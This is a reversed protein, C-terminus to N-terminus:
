APENNWRTYVLYYAFVLLAADVTGLITLWAGRCFMDRPRIELLMTGASDALCWNRNWFGAPKLTFEEGGFQIITERRFFGRPRASGSIGGNEWLEHWGRWWSKRKVVLERGSAFRFVDNSRLPLLTLEGMIGTATQLSHRTTLFGSVIAEVEDTTWDQNM